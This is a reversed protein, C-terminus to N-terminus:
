YGESIKGNMFLTVMESNNLNLENARPATSANICCGIYTSDFTVVTVFFSNNSFYMGDFDTPRLGLTTLGAASQSIGFGAYTGYEMYYVRETTKIQGLAVVGETWKSRIISKRMIPAATAALVGVIIVVMMLEILTFSKNDKYVDRKINQM